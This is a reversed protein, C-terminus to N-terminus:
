AFLEEQFTKLATCLMKKKAPRAKLKTEVGFISKTTPGRAPIDKVRVTLLNPIRTSKKDKLQRKMVKRLGDM